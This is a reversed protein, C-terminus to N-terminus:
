RGPRPVPGTTAATQAGSIGGQQLDQLLNNLDQSVTSRATATTSNGADGFDGGSQLANVVSQFAYEPSTTSSFGSISSTANGDSGGGSTPSEGAGRIHQINQQCSALAQETGSNEFDTLHGEDKELQAGLTSGRRSNSNRQRNRRLTDINKLARQASGIDESQDANKPSAIKQQRQYLLASLNQHYGSVHRM